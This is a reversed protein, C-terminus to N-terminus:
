SHIQDSHAFYYTLKKNNLKIALYLQRVFLTIFIWGMFELVCFGCWGLLFTILRVKVMYLIFSDLQKPTMKDRAKLEKASVKESERKKGIFYVAIDLCSVSALYTFIFVPVMEMKDMFFCAFAAICLSILTIRKRYYFMDKFSFSQKKAM